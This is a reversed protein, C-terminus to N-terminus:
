STRTVDDTFMLVRAATRNGISVTM